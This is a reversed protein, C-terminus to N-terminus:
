PSYISVLTTQNTIHITLYRLFCEFWIFMEDRWLKKRPKINLTEIKSDMESISWPVSIYTSRQHVSHHGPWPITSVQLWSWLCSCFLFFFDCTALDPSYPPQPLVTVKESKLFYKVLKPEHTPPNSYLILVHRLGSM